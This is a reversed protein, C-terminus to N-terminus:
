SPRGIVRANRLMPLFAVIDDLEVEGDKWDKKLLTSAKRKGGVEELLLDYITGLKEVLDDIHQADGPLEEIEEEIETMRLLTARPLPKTQFTAGCWDVKNPTFQRKLSLDAM